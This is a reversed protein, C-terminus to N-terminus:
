PLTRAKKPIVVPKVPKLAVKRAPLVKAVFKKLDITATIANDIGILASGAVSLVGSAQLLVGGAIIIWAPSRVRM